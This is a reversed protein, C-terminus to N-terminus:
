SSKLIRQMSRIIKEKGVARSDYYYERVVWAVDGDDYIDLFVMPNVTGYDIAIYRRMRDKNMRIWELKDDGFLNQDDDWADKYIAGEAIVWLGQIFRQFFVGSYMSRYRQRTDESLSLNDDM